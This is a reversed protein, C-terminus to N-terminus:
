KVMNLKELIDKIEAEFKKDNVTGLRSLQAELGEIVAALRSAEVQDPQIETSSLRSLEFLWRVSNTTSAARSFFDRAVSEISTIGNSAALWAASGTLYYWFARYGQVENGSLATVVARSEEVAKEFNGSWLAYQYRVEHVVAANLKDIGPLKTQPLSARRTIIDEEVDNWEQKHELFIRLNDLFDLHEIDKSQEIGFVLEAQIEPHLFPRRDKDLLFNNLEEGLIIIAAYDNAARTCRGFAQVIRTLIRDMFLISAPMRTVVFKEQLHTARQLGNVVMLRCEDGALDIGDYRNAIVAVAKAEAIFPQKSQEIESTEFVKYGSNQPFKNKFTAALKDDPVLVLSRSTEKIMDIALDTASKEDLSRELFFFLRRGIGQQDWGELVPLRAIKEVGCLRELEGGEGLTASMYIRQKAVSFPPHTRTPPIVPRILISNVSLYMQCAFFHDRLVSWPHRLTKGKTQEDLLAILESSVSSHLYPTLIKEVWQLDSFSNSTSILRSYHEPSVVDRIASVLTNFLVIHDEQQNSREILLSWYKAIYNEAAHADDLIIVDANNFFSNTNFLGSYTTVALAEANTYEAKSAPLYNSQKGTLANAKIGYKILSQETVQNVLQRTPCLYVVRENFRRRRWEGIGLGVLTKGSGTPLQLAVDPSELVQKQYERWLDAQHALPGGIQRNKYDRYMSEITEVSIRSHAAKKFAM